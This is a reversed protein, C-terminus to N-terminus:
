SIGDTGFQSLSYVNVSGTIRVEEVSSGGRWSSACKACDTENGVEWCVCGIGAFADAFLAAICGGILLDLAFHGYHLFDSGM